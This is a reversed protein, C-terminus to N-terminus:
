TRRRRGARDGQAGAPRHALSRAADKEDTVTVTQPPVAAARDATAAHRAPPAAPATQSIASAAPPKGYRQSAISEGRCSQSAAAPRAAPRACRITAPCITPRMTFRMSTAARSTPTTRPWQCIPRTQLAAAPASRHRAARCSVGSGAAGGRCLGARLRRHRLLDGKPSDIVVAVAIVPNNVPAIGAFSAIHMTKSYLHTAPDIKQATGTKGGSSYGNLQAPKGTGYLM